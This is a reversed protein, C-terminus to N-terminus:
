MQKLETAIAKGTATFYQEVESYPLTISPVGLYGPSINYAPWMFNIGDHDFKFFHPPFYKTNNGTEAIYNDFDFDYKQILAERIKPTIDDSNSSLVDDISLLKKQVADIVYYSNFTNGHAGGTYEWYENILEIYNKSLYKIYLNQDLEVRFESDIRGVNPVEDTGNGRVDIYKEDKNEKYYRALNEAYEEVTKFKTQDENALNPRKLVVDNILQNMSNPSLVEDFNIRSSVLYGTNPYYRNYSFTHKYIAISENQKSGENCGSLVVIAVAILINFLKTKM